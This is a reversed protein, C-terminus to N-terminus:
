LLCRLLSDPPLNIELKLFRKQDLLMGPAATSSNRQGTQNLEPRNTEGNFFAVLFKKVALRCSSAPAYRQDGQPDRAQPPSLALRVRANLASM